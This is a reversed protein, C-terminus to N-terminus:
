VGGYFIKHRMGRGEKNRNTKIDRRVVSGAPIVTHDAIQVGQIITANAGILCEKGISAGGCVCASVAIHTYDSISCDHEILSCSNLICHKGIRVGANVVARKGVFTGEGVKVSESVIATPDIIIPLFFGIRKLKKTLENRLHGKGLFGVGVIAYHIGSDYFQELNDDSGIVSIGAYIYGDGKKGDVFGEIQYEEKLALLTDCVSKAHGGAGLIIIKKKEKVGEVEEANKGLGGDAGHGAM